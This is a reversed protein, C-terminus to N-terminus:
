KLEFGNMMKVVNAPPEHGLSRLQDLIKSCFYKSNNIFLVSQQLSLQLNFIQDTYLYCNMRCNRKVTDRITVFESGGPTKTEGPTYTGSIKTPWFGDDFPIKMILDVEFNRPYDKTARIDKVEGEIPFCIGGQTNYTYVPDGIKLM